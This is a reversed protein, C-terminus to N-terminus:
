YWLARLVTLAKQNFTTQKPYEGHEKKYSILYKNLKKYYNQHLYYLKRKKGDESVLSMEKSRGTKKDYENNYM